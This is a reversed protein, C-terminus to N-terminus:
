DCKGHNDMWRNSFGLKVVPFKRPKSKNLWKQTEGPKSNALKTAIFLGTSKSGKLGDVLLGVVGPQESCGVELPPLNPLVDNQELGETSTDQSIKLLLVSIM